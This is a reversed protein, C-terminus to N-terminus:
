EDNGIPDVEAADEHDKQFTVFFGELDNDEVYLDLDLLRWGAKAQEEYLKTLKEAAGDRRNFASVDVFVTKSVPPKANPMEASAASVFGMALVSLVLMKMLSYQERLLNAMQSSEPPPQMVEEYWSAPYRM